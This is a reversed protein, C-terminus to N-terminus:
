ETLFQDKLCDLTMAMGFSMQQVVFDTNMRRFEQRNVRNILQTLDYMMAEVDARNGSLLYENINRDREAWEETTCPQYDPTVELFGRIAGGEYAVILGNDDYHRTVKQEGGYRILIPLGVEDRLRYRMTGVLYPDYEPETMDVSTGIVPDPPVAKTKTQSKLLGFGTAAWGLLGLAGRLMQRRQM